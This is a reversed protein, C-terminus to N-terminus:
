YPYFAENESRIDTEWYQDGNKKTCFRECIGNWHPANVSCNLWDTCTVEPISEIVVPDIVFPNRKSTLEELTPVPEEDVVPEPPPPPPDPIVIIPTESGVPSEVTVDEKCPGVAYLHCGWKAMGLLMVFSVLLIIVTRKMIRREKGIGHHM